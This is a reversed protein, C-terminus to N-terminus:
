AYDPEEFDKEDLLCFCWLWSSGDIYLRPFHFPNQDAQQMYRVQHLPVGPMNIEHCRTGKFILFGFRGDRDNQPIRTYEVGELHCDTIYHKINELANDESANEVPGSGPNTLIMM